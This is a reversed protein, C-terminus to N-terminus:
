HEDATLLNHQPRRLQLEIATRLSDARQGDDLLRKLGAFHHEFCYDCQNLSSVWVGITELYWKPLTNQSLARVSPKAHM